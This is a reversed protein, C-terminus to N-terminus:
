GNSIDQKTLMTDPLPDNLDLTEAEDKVVGCYECLVILHGSETRGERWEHECMVDEPDDPLDQVDKCHPCYMAVIIEHDSEGSFEIQEWEHKCSSSSEEPEDQQVSEELMETKTRWNDRLDCLTEFMDNGKTNIPRGLHDKFEVLLEVGGEPKVAWQFELDHWDIFRMTAREIVLERVSYKDMIGYAEDIGVGELVADSLAYILTDHYLADFFWFKCVNKNYIAAIAGETYLPVTILRKEVNSGKRKKKLLLAHSSRFHQDLEKTSLLTKFDKYYPGNTETTVAPEEQEPITQPYMMFGPIGM